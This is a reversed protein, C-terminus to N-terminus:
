LICEKLNESIIFKKAKRYALYGKCGIALNITNDLFKKNLYYNRIGIKNNEEQQRQQKEKLARKLFFLFAKWSDQKDIM